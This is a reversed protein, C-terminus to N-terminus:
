IQFDLLLLLYSRKGVYGGSKIDSFGAFSVFLFSKGIYGESKIGSFGAFSVFLVNGRM